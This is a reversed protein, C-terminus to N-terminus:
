AVTTMVNDYQQLKLTRILRSVDKIYAEGIESYAVLRKVLVLSDLPQQQKRMMAREQRLGTYAPHTNLNLVFAAISAQRSPFSKTLFDAHLAKLGCGKVSCRQGFYANGQRAFRSTGWASEDIAQALLLSKPVDDVRLLLEDWDGKNRLSFQPYRYEKALNLLWNSAQTSVFGQKLYDLQLTQIKKRQAKIENFVIQAETQMSHIFLKQQQTLRIHKSEDASVKGLFFLCYVFFSLLICGSVFFAFNKKSRKFLVLLAGM